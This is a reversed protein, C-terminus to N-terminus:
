EEISAMLQRVIESVAEQDFSDAAEKLEYVIQLIEDKSSITELEEALRLISDPNFIKINDELGFIIERVKETHPTLLSKLRGEGASAVQSETGSDQRSEKKHLYMIHKQMKEYLEQRDIPKAIYDDCGLNIYKEGDGKMAHATVAIVYLNYLEEHERIKRIVEEGDLIPMQMDLLLLDYQRSELEELAIQGNPAVDCELNIGKLHMKMLRQNIENDEAYLIAYNSKIKRFDLRDKRKRRLYNTPISDVLLRLGEACARIKDASYSDKEIEEDIISVKEYIEHMNLNGSFGKLDHAIFKIDGKRNKMVADELKELKRPLEYIGDLLIKEMEPDDQMQRRWNRIMQEGIERQFDGQQGTLGTSDLAPMHEALPLDASVTFTTGKGPESVVTIDGNMLRALRRSIALGLGTGGYRRETSSDAQEFASFISDLKDEAIGVGTDIVRVNLKAEEYTCKITVSGKETFKFANSVVNLLIQNLRLEDGLVMVPVTDEKQLSFSLGKEEAVVDYMTKIHNLTRHLNFVNNEIQIKGAEIKSFDLIDNILNLLNRGSKKILELKDQKEPDRENDLLIDTFGIIANMPTRIEHSMNALFESKLKNAIEAEEKAQLLNEEAIKRATIDEKVALYSIIKGKGDKVPTIVAEEWYTSGDKRKNLFEGHWAGGKHLTKWLDKYVSDPQYGSKLIRPNKGMAAEVSYGTSKEFAKNAFTINGDTDTIVITNASQDVAKSLKALELEIQKRSTIDTGYIIVTGDETSTDTNLTFLYIKDEITEEFQVVSEGSTHKWYALNFGPLVTEIKEGRLEQKFLASGAPNTKEIVGDANIKVVPAPNGAFISAEERIVEEARLRRIRSFAMFLMLVLTLVGVATSTIIVRRKGPLYQAEFVEHPVCSVLKWTYNNEIDHAEHELPRVTDFTILGKRTYFSGNESKRIQDLFLHPFKDVLEEKSMTVSFEWEEDENPNYSWFSDPNVLYYNGYSFEAGQMVQDFIQEAYYNLVVIGILVTESYIPKALRIVPKYPVEIKGYEMNLEVPSIYVMGQELKMTEKFYTKDHKDQLKEPPVVHPEGGTRNIRLFEKGSTDIFRIQDYVQKRKIFSTYIGTMRRITDLSFTGDQINLLNEIHSIYSIDELLPHFQNNMSASQLEINQKENQEIVFDISRTSNRYYFLAVVAIGILVPLSFLIINYILKRKYSRDFELNWGKSM